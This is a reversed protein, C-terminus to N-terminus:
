RQASHALLEDRAMLLNKDQPFHQLGLNVIHSAHEFHGAKSWLSATRLFDSASRQALHALKAELALAAESLNNLSIHAFMKRDHLEASDPRLQLATDLHQLGPVSNGSRVLALGLKSMLWPSGPDRKLATQYSAGSESFSHLNYLADGQAEALLSTCHGLGDAHSFCQLAGIFQQKRLLVLGQFFWAPGLRADLQCARAFLRLAEDMDSFNDMEVLGLELHAQADNPMEALKQRGLERYFTNKNAREEPSTALGFHYILFDACGMLHGYKLLMPGVSEHVRGVFRINKDNRFLRVNQHDIYAPYSKAAPLACDNPHAPKDWIRDQLSLVFNRITVQYGATTTSRTLHKLNGKLGPELMEDADLSLIWDSHVEALCFNRAEAFDNRWPIQIVRAGMSSAIEQTKDQSGTDAIVIEHVVERVSELCQTLTKAANRVIMSLALTTM